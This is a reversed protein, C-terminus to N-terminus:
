RRENVFKDLQKLVEMYGFRRPFQMFGHLAHKLVVLSVKCGNEEMTKAYLLADDYLPDRTGVAIFTPTKHRLLYPSLRPEEYATGAPVYQDRFWRLMDTTLYNAATGLENVSKCTLNADVLPYFLVLGLINKNEAALVAALNGGASDGGLYVAGYKKQVEKIVHAADNLQTPFKAEPALSYAVSIVNMKVYRALRRCLIDHSKIGGLVYGGGHFYVLYKQDAGSHYERVSLGAIQYDKIIKVRIKQDLTCMFDFRKRALAINKKSSEPSAYANILRVLVSKDLSQKKFNIIKQYPPM